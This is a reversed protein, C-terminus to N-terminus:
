SIAIKELLWRKDGSLYGRCIVDGFLRSFTFDAEGAIFNDVCEKTSKEYTARLTILVGNEPKYSERAWFNESSGGLVEIEQKTM